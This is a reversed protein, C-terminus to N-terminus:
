QAEIKLRSQEINGRIMIVASLVNLSLYFSGVSLLTIAENTLTPFESFESFLALFMFLNLTIFISPFILKVGNKAVFLHLSFVVILGIAVSNLLTSTEFWYYAISILFYANAIPLLKIASIKNM